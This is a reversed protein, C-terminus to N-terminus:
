SKGKSEGTFPLKIKLNLPACVATFIVKTHSLTSLIETVKFSVAVTKRGKLFPLLVTNVVSSKGILFAVTVNSRVRDLSYQFVSQKGKM